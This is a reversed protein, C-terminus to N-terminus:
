IVAENKASSQNVSEQSSRSSAQDRVSRFQTLTGEQADERTASACRRDHRFQAHVIDPQYASRQRLDALPPFTTHHRCTRDALMNRM